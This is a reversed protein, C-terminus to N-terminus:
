DGVTLRAPGPLSAPASPALRPPLPRRHYIRWAWPSGAKVPLLVYHITQVCLFSTEDLLTAIDFGGEGGVCRTYVCVCVYVCVRGRQDSLGSYPSKAQGRLCLVSVGIESLRGETGKGRGNQLLVCVCLCVSM